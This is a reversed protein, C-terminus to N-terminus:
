IKRCYDEDKECPEDICYKYRKIRPCFKELEMYNMHKTPNSEIHLVRLKRLISDGFIANFSKFNNHMLRLIKLNVLPVLTSGTLNKLNNGTMDLESLKKLGNFANEEVTHIGTCILSLTTLSGFKEFTNNTLVLLDQKEIHLLEVTKTMSEDFWTISFNEINNNKLKLVKLSVFKNFLSISANSFNSNEMTLGKIEPYNFYSDDFADTLNILTLYEISIPEFDDQEEPQKPSTEENQVCHFWFVIFVLCKIGNICM